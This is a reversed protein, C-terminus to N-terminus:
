LLSALPISASSAECGAQGAFSLRERPVTGIKAATMPCGQFCAYCGRFHSQGRRGSLPCACKEAKPTYASSCGTLRFILWDGAAQSRNGFDDAVNTGQQVVVHSLHDLVIHLGPVSAFIM